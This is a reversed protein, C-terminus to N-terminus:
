QEDIMALVIPWGPHYAYKSRGVAPFGPYQVLVVWAIAVELPRYLAPPATPQRKRMHDAVATPLFALM